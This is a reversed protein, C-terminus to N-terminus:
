PLIIYNVENMRSTFIKQSINGCDIFYFIKILSKGDFYNCYDHLKLVNAYIIHNIKNNLVSIHCIQLKWDKIINEFKACWIRPRQVQLDGKASDLTPDAGQIKGGFEYSFFQTFTSQRRHRRQGNM